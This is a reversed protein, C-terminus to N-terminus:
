IYETADGKLKAIESMIHLSIRSYIERSSSLNSFLKESYFPKGFAVEVKHFKIFKAGPPLAKGSGRIYAPVVVAKGEWAIMGVGPLPPLLEGSVSRTGEPFLILVKGHRLFEVAQKIARRDFGERHVSFANVFRLFSGWVPFSFLDDKAMYHAQRPIAAGIAPPDLFSLHNCAVIVGGRSPINERGKVKFGFLIKLLITVIIHFIAYIIRKM